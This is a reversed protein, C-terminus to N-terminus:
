AESPMMTSRMALACVATVTVLDDSRGAARAARWMKIGKVVAGAGVLSAAAAGTAWAVDNWRGQAAFSGAEIIGAVTGVPGPIMSAVGAAATLNALARNPTSTSATPTPSPSPSHLKVRPVRDIAPSDTIEPSEHIYEYDGYGIGYSFRANEGAYGSLTMTAGFTWGGYSFAM